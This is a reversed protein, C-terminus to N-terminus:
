FSVEYQYRLLISKESAKVTYNGFPTLLANWEMMTFREIDAFPTNEQNQWVQNLSFRLLKSLAKAGVITSHNDHQLWHYNLLRQTAPMQQDRIQAASMMLQDDEMLRVPMVQLTSSPDKIDYTAGYFPNAYSTISIVVLGIAALCASIASRKQHHHISSFGM